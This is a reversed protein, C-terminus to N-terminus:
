CRGRCPRSPTSTRMPSWPDRVFAVNVQEAPSAAPNTRHRARVNLSPAGSAPDSATCAAALLPLTALPRVWTKM